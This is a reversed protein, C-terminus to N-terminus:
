TCQISGEAGYLGAATKRPGEEGEEVTAGSLERGLIEDKLKLEDIIEQHGTMDKQFMEPDVFYNLERM